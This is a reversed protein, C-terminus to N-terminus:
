HVYDLLLMAGEPPSGRLHLQRRPKVAAMLKASGDRRRADLWELVQVSISQVTNCLWTCFNLASWFPLGIGKVTVWNLRM